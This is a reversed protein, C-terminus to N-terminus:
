KADKAEKTVQAVITNYQMMVDAVQTILPDVEPKPKALANEISIMGKEIGTYASISRVKVLDEINDWNDNFAEFPKKAKAINGAKLAPTVERLHARELRLRAVDDYLRNLPAAKEVMAITEDYKKLMAQAEPLLAATDPTAANLGETLKAQYNHELDNYAEMSRTLIYVEVGNWISDYADMAAKAGAADKKQLAAVTNVLTPRLTKLSTVEFRAAGAAQGAYGYFPVALMGLIVLSAIKM